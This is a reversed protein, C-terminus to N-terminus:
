ANTGRPSHSINFKALSSAFDAYENFLLRSNRQATGLASLATRAIILATPFPSMQIGALEFSKQNGIHRSNFARFMADQRDLNRPALRTGPEGGQELGQDDVPELFGRDLGDGTLELQAPIGDVTDHLSGDAPPHFPALGNGGLPDADILRREALAMVIDGDDGVMASTVHQMDGEVALLLVQDFVVVTEAILLFRGDLRNGHIHSRGIDIRGQLVNGPSALLDGEILEMYGLKEAFGHVLHATPLVLEKLLLASFVQRTGLVGPQGIRAVHADLLPPPERIKTVAVQFGRTGPGDLFVGHTQPVVDTSGPGLLGPLFPEGPGYAAAQVRDLLRGLRYLGVKPANEVGHNQSGVVPQCLADIASDLHDLNSAPAEAVLLPEAGGDIEM